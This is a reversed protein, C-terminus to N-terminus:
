KAKKTKLGMSWEVSWLNSMGQTYLDNAIGVQEKFKKVDSFKGGNDTVSMIVGYANAMSSYYTSINSIATNLTDKLNQPLKEPLEIDNVKYSRDEFKGKAVEAAQYLDYETAEYNVYLRMFRDCQNQAKQPIDRLQELKKNIAKLQERIESSDNSTLPITAVAKDPKATNSNSKTNSTHCNWEYAFLVAIIALIGIVGSLCSKGTKTTVILIVVVLVIIGIFM